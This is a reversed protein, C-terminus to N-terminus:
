TNGVRRLEVDSFFGTAYLAVLAERVRQPNLHDGINVPLYNFVTGESIRQLGQVRIDRVVFDTPSGQPVENAAQAAAGPAPAPAARPAVPAPAPAPAGQPAPAAPVPPAPASQPASAVPPKAPVSTPAGAEALLCQRRLARLTAQEAAPALEIARSLADAAMEYRKLALLARGSLAYGDWRDPAIRVAADGASLAADARGSQLAANGQSIQADFDDNSPAM